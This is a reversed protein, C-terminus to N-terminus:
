ARRVGRVFVRGSEDEDVRHFEGPLACANAPIVV